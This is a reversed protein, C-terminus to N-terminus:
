DMDITATCRRLEPQTRDCERPVVAKRGTSQSRDTILDDDLQAAELLRPILVKDTEVSSRTLPTRMSSSERMTSKISPRVILTGSAQYGLRASACGSDNRFQVMAPAPQPM